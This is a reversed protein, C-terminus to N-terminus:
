LKGHCVDELSIAELIQNMGDRLRVWVAQVLCPTGRQCVGLTEDRVCDCPSIDGELATILEKLNIEQPSKALLYGGNAGRISRILSAKKLDSFIQELYQESIQEEAAVQRLPLPGLGHHRALITMARMGYESRTSFKM